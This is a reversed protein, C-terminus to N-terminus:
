SSVRPPYYKLTCIPCQEQWQCFPSQFHQLELASHLVHFAFATLLSPMCTWRLHHKVVKNGPQEAEAVVVELLERETRRSSDVEKSQEKIMLVVYGPM